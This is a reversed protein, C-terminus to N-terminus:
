SAVRGWSDMVAERYAEGVADRFGWRRRERVGSLPVGPDGWVHWGIADRLAAVAEDSLQSVRSGSVGLVAAIDTLSREEWFREVMVRRTRDPLCSLGVRVWGVLDDVDEDLYSDVAPAAPLRDVTEPVDVSLAPAHRASRAQHAVYEDVAMGVAAAVAADGAQDPGGALLEYRAADIRRQQQRWGVPALDARRMVDRAAGAIRQWAWQRFPAGRQPRWSVAAAHLAEWGAAEMEDVDALGGAHKAVSHAVLRPMWAYARCLTDVHSPGGPRDPPSPAPRATGPLM